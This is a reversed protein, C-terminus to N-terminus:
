RTFEKFCLEIQARLSGTRLKLCMVSSTVFHQILQPAGVRSTTSFGNMEIGNEICKSSVSEYIERMVELALFQYDILDLDNEDLKNSLAPVMEPDFGLGFSGLLNRVRLDYVAAVSGSIDESTRMKLDERKVDVGLRDQIVQTAVEFFLTLLRQKVAKTKHASFFGEEGEPSFLLRMEAQLVSQSSPWRFYQIAATNTDSYTFGKIGTLIFVFSPRFTDSLNLLSQVKSANDKAQYFNGLIVLQFKQRTAKLVGASSQDAEVIQVDTIAGKVLDVLESRLASDKEIILVATKTKM